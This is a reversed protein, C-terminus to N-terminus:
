REVGPDPLQFRFRKVTMTGLEDEVVLLLIDDRWYPTFLRGVACRWWMLRDGAGHTVSHVLYAHEGKRTGM